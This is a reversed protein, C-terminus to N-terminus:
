RPNPKIAVFGHRYNIDLANAIVLHADAVPNKQLTRGTLMWPPDGLGLDIAGELFPSRIM